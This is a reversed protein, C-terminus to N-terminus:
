FLNRVHNNGSQKSRIDEKCKSIETKLVVQFIEKRLM